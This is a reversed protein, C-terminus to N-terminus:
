IFQVNGNPLRLYVSEQMGVSKVHKALSQLNRVTKPSNDCAIIVDHVPEVYLKGTDPSQWAGKCEYTSCGGFVKSAQLMVNNLLTSLSNGDNDAVPVKICAEKLVSSM